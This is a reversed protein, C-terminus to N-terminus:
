VIGGRKIGLYRGINEIKDYIMKDDVDKGLWKNDEKYFAKFYNDLLFLCESIVNKRQFVFFM